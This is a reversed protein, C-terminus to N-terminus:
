LREEKVLLRLGQVANNSLGSLFSDGYQPTIEWSNSYGLMNEEGCSTGCQANQCLFIRHGVVSVRCDRIHESVIVCWVRAGHTLSAASEVQCLRM